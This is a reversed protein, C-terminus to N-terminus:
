NTSFGNTELTGKKDPNSIVAPRWQPSSIKWLLKMLIKDFNLTITMFDLIYTEFIMAM